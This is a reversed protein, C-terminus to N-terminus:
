QVGIKLVLCKRKKTNYKKYKEKLIMLKATGSVLYDDASSINEEFESLYEPKLENYYNMASEYAIMRTYYCTAIDGIAFRLSDSVGDPFSSMLDHMSYNADSCTKKAIEAAKYADYIAAQGNALLRSIKKFQKVAVSVNKDIKDIKNYVDEILIAIASDSWMEKPPSKSEKSENEKFFDDKELNEKATKYEDSKEDISFCGTLLSSLFIFIM